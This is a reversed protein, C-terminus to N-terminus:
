EKIKLRDGSKPKEVIIDLGWIKIAHQILIVENEHIFDDANAIDIYCNILTNLSKDDFEEKAKIKELSDDFQGQRLEETKLEIFKETTMGFDRNFNENNIDPVFIKYSEFIANKESEDIEQDAFFSICLLSYLIDHDETWDIPKEEETKERASIKRQLEEMREKDADNLYGDQRKRKQMLKDVELSLFKVDRELAELRKDMLGFLLEKFPELQEKEPAFYINLTGRDTDEWFQPGFISLLFCQTNANSKFTKEDFYALDDLYDEAIATAYEKKGVSLYFLALGIQIRRTGNNGGLIGKDVEDKSYGPPKDLQLILKLLDMQDDDRWGKEHILVQM